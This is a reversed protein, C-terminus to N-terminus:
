WALLNCKKQWTWSKIIVAGSGWSCVCICAQKRMTMCPATHSNWPLFRCSFVCKLSFLMSLYKVAKHSYAVDPVLFIVPFTPWQIYGAMFQSLVGYPCIWQDLFCWCYNVNSNKKIRIFNFVFYDKRETLPLYKRPEHNRRLGHLSLTQQLLPVELAAIDICLSLSLWTVAFDCM